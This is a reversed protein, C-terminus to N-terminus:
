DRHSGILNGNLMRVLVSVALNFLIGLLVWFFILLPLLSIIAAYNNTMDVLWKAISECLNNIPTKILLRASSSPASLYALMQFLSFLLGTLFGPWYFRKYRILQGLM